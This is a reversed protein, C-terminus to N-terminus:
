KEARRAIENIFRRATDHACLKLSILAAREGPGADQREADCLGETFEREYREATRMGDLLMHVNLHAM